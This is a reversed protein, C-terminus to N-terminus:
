DAKNQLDMIAAALDGKNKTIAEKAMEESVGTQEVVTNIDDENIEPSSDIEEEESSGVIQWSEQGMMNVKSVSPNRFIIKKDETVIIVEKADIEQQQVGMKKMAQKLMRPNMGPIM